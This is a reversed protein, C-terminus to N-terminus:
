QLEVDGKEVANLLRKLYTRYNMTITATKNTEFEILKKLLESKKM